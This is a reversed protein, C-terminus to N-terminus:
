HFPKLYRPFSLEYQFYKYVGPNRGNAVAYFAYSGWRPTTSGAGDKIIETWNLEEKEKMYERAEEITAFSKHVAACGTVRPHADGRDFTLRNRVAVAQRFYWSSFITPKSIRGKVIAYYEMEKRKPAM